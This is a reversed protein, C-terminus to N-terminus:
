RCEGACPECVALASLDSCGYRARCLVCRRTVSMRRDQAVSGVHARVLGGCGPLSGGGVPVRMEAQSNGLM